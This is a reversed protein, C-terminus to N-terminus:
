KIDFVIKLVNIAKTTEAENLQEELRSLRGPREVVSKRGTLLYDVSTGLERAIISIHQADIRKCRGNTIKSLQEKSISLKESLDGMKVNKKKCLSRVRDGIESLDKSTFRQVGEEDVM